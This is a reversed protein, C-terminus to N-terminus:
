AEMLQEMQDILEDFLELAQNVPEPSAMDVGAGKLLTIPDASCGGSLFNLYDKVASEGEALIKRSLAIAAAYGTSYQYVYFNYYFHPIRAWELAIQDDVVIDPGFYDANLQRYIACLAEATLGEGRQAMENIKLEFEAFMTQRYLTTRFQELFYNILYAREKRDTTKKLLHEMLLAENCTSAVEAVFIVYDSYAVPQNENSLYSHLAHGMEHALTFVDNLTDQYNLLVYPHVRAGASYAGSRKGVNEYVDIWRGELGKKLLNLYEEGLPELAELTLKKGESFPINMEVDGVIPTYLDYFHLEDVGLLKKRLATYRHLKPLNARVASILNHYVEVPVETQDLAAELSSGYKRAKSFFLLQKTQASLTAASTNKFQDYVSYLSEFASKRLGRDQSYMLPIFSGHTVAHHEGKSDVADPYRMDADNLMSFINDPCEAMEGASALLAEEAPSLIHERKRRIRDLNRRYLQLDPEDQYFQELKDDSIALIENDEYSGATNIAVLLSSLQAMMDQYKAVRTDEDAKRYAYNVLADFAVNMEDGLKLCELLKAGSDALHGELARVRNLFAKAEELAAQWAEDTPFIDELAWTNERTQDKRELLKAM